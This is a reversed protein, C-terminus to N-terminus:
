PKRGSRSLMRDLFVQTTRAAEDLADKPSVEGRIARDVARDLQEMYYAQAPMVPRQHKCKRLIEAFVALQPDREAAAFFPSPRWGPFGVITRVELTTGAPSACAWLIYEIAARRRAPDTLTSPIALTWGGVWSSAEEGGPPCPLPAMGFAVNPAYKRMEELGTVHLAQMAQKGTIFPNQEASGFTSQLAAIRRVDYRRAYTCMWELAAVIRPDNATIRAREADYFEGGWAWGWTFISNHRGYIGWPVFGIRVLRGGEFRTLAESYLDLQEITAPAKEPDIGAALEPPVQGSELARRIVDKNWFFSFNPDACWTIAWVKGKYTCQRWCPPFFERQLADPDRGSQRILDSLDALLGREAWEAVQPGDVFIVEPACNGVVATYFKQNNSLDNPVYLLECAIGPHSAEFAEVSHRYSELMPGGWIHWIRIVTRSGDGSLDPPRVAVLFALLAAAGAAVLVGRLIPSHEHM